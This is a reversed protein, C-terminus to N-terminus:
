PARAPDRVCSLKGSQLWRARITSMVGANPKLQSTLDEQTARSLAWGLPAQTGPHARPYIHAYRREESGVHEVYQIDGVPKSVALALAQRAAAEHANRGSIITQLPVISEQPRKGPDPGPPEDYGNDIQIAFPVVCQGSAANYREVIPELAMWLQAATDAASSDFYGGDVIYTTVVRDSDGCDELRGSPSVYPFRASLLAATSLRLDRGGCLFGNVDVSGGLAWDERAAATQRAAKLREAAGQGNPGLGGRPEFARVSLCDEIAAKPRQQDVNANLVSVNFRCGSEVATGNLVLLPPNDGTNFMGKALPSRADLEGTGRPRDPDPLWEREWSRELIEARDAIRGTHLLSNPLDAFLAWAITPSLADAKLTDVWASADQSTRVHTSWATLGLSGGSVGSAAIVPQATRSAGPCPHDDAHQGFLCDLTQATWYAARIGGGSAALLVLPTARRSRSARRKSSTPAAPLGRGERWRDFLQELTVGPRPTTSATSQGLLRADHFGGKDVVAASTGWVLMLLLFPTRRFGLLRLAAPPRTREAQWSLGFGLLTMAIAFAAVIGAGGVVQAIDWPDVWTWVAVALVILAGLAVLVASADGKGRLLFYAGWGAGQLALGMGLWRFYEDNRAWAVEGLAAGQVALGLVVLPAAALLAPLVAAGFSNSTPRPPDDSFPGALAGLAALMALIASLVLVGPGQPWVLHAVLGFALAIAAAILLEKSSVPDPANEPRAANVLGRACTLLVASLVITLLIAFLAQRPADQWRRLLDAAQAAFPSAKVVYCLGLAAVLVFPARLRVLLRRLDHVHDRRFSALALLGFMVAGVVAAFIVWKLATVVYLSWTLTWEDCWAAPDAQVCGEVALVQLLDELLDVLGLALVGACALTMVRAYHRVLDWIREGENSQAARTVAVEGAAVRRGVASELQTSVATRLLSARLRLLSVALLWGYALVFLLDLALYWRALLTPETFGVTRGAFWTSAVASPRGPREPPLGVDSLSGMGFAADGPPHIARLLADFQGLAALLCVSFFLAVALAPQVDCGKLVFQVWFGFTPRLASPLEQKIEVLQDTPEPM